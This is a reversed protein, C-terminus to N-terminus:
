TAKQTVQQRVWGVTRALGETLSTTARWHLTAYALETDAVRVQEFPRDHNAGFIPQVKKGTLEIIKQVVTRVSTLGGTGLDIMWGDIGATCGAALFGDVVDDIYIWDAEWQGSSIKPAEGCLATHIVYPVLKSSHQGPGYTMYPRVILVPTKYLKFFMQGYVSGAWKAAAYPSGPINNKDSPRPETLSGPIVIRSCGLDAAATLLYITSALLSRFTPIVLKLDTAATSLGALHFIIDPKTASLIQRLKCMDAPDAEFWRMDGVVPQASRSVAYVEAGNEILGRCLPAGIFGTAGTILVKRNRYPAACDGHSTISV